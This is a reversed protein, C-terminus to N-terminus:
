KFSKVFAWSNCTCIRPIELVPKTKGENIEWFDNIELFDDNLIKMIAERAGLSIDPMVPINLTQEIFSHTGKVMFHEAISIYTQISIYSETQIM